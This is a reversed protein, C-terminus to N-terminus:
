PMNRRASPPSAEPAPVMEGPRLPASGNEIDQCCRYRKMGAPRRPRHRESGGVVTELDVCAELDRVHAPAPPSSVEWWRAYLCGRKQRDLFSAHRGTTERGPGQGIAQALNSPNQLLCEAALM